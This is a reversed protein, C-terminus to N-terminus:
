VQIEEITISSAALANTTADQFLATTIHIAASTNEFRNVKITSM